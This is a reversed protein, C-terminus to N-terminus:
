LVWARSGEYNQLPSSVTHGTLLFTTLSAVLTFGPERAPSRPSHGGERRLTELGLSM